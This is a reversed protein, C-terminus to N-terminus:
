GQGQNHQRRVRRSDRAQHIDLWRKTRPRVSSRVFTNHRIGVIVLCRPRRVQIDFVWTGIGYKLTDFPLIKRLRGRLRQGGSDITIGDLQRPVKWRPVNLTILDLVEIEIAFM